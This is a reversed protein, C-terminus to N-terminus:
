EVGHVEAVGFALVASDVLRRDAHAVKGARGYARGREIKEWLVGVAAGEGHAGQQEEAQAAQQGDPMFPRLPHM